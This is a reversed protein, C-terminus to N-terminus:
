DVNFAMHMGSAYHGVENCMLIYHGTPLTVTFTKSTGGDMDGTEGVNGIEQMKGAEDGVALKDQAVDTKLVVLEHAILGNNKVVFTVPGASTKAHDVTVKMMDTLSANITDVRPAAAPANKASSASTAATGCGALLVGAIALAGLNQLRRM